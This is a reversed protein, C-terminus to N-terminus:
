DQFWVWIQLTSWVSGFSFASDQLIFVWGSVTWTLQETTDSEKRSWLSCCALGGQGDGAGPAQEFEHGDLWHHWGVLEDETMGKEEQWWDEGADLDKGILCNKADPPWLIPTEVEVDTRGTFIWSQNGKPNVPKIEKNDLLSELAKESVVTLFYWNKPVWSEKHDLEWMWVHNSSFVYSQSYPGKNAFYHRQKNIRQRPKDYSKKWSALM